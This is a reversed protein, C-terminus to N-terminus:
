DGKSDVVDTGFTRRALRAAGARGRHYRLAANHRLGRWFRRRRKARDQSEKARLSHERAAAKERRRADNADARADRSRAKQRETEASVDDREDMLLWRVVGRDARAAVNGVLARLWPAAVLSPDPRAPGRQVLGEVVDVFRPTAPADLGAPRIFTAIFRRNREDRQGGLALAELLQGHHEDFESATHLIGGEVRTLYQFHIMEEQHVRYEPPTMALIPRGVIAAELFASTVLGVVASSYYLADFYDNKAHDSIPNGGHFAVNELGTLPVGDWEKMREPHPRVLVGLERLRADDSARLRDIWTRVFQPEPPHPTPSLASHVYLVFPRDSRLGMAQCFQERSRAPTRGFWHDYCQAGTAAIREAPVGHMDVAERRQVDNWVVVLDPAIHLLAKSSLHDWSMICAAVPTGRVRANKLHDLQQSRSYTLSALLLVDPAHRKLYQEGAVSRPMLREIRQLASGVAPAAGPIRALARVVRPAREAARTRLKPMDRYRRDLFRVYDLGVRLRSAADYWPSEQPSPAFDWTIRGSTAGTYASALREVLAQGGLTEPEDASLHVHHGRDALARIASEFNRFYAFHLASFLIKM